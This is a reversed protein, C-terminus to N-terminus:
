SSDAGALPVGTTLTTWRIASNSRAGFPRGDALISAYEPQQWHAYAIEWLGSPSPVSVKRNFPWEDPRSWYHALLDVARKLNGGRRGEYTWLDIGRRGAIEAVAVKYTLAGQTYLLGSRGRRTEEPIDGDPGILDVMRRWREIAERFRRDDGIYDSVVVDAFVGADGWNNSRESTAPLIVEALWGRFAKRDADSLVQADEILSAAFVFGPAHRSIVLSTACSGNDPCTNRTSRTVDAWAMVFEAAKEAYRSDGTVAHALGLGYASASDRIFRSTARGGGLPDRPDPEADLADEADALLDGVATRYPEEGREALAARRALEAVDTLYGEASDGGQDGPRGTRARDPSSEGEGRGG